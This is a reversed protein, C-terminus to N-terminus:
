QTIKGKGLHWVQMQGGMHFKLVANFYALTNESWKPKIMNQQHFIDGYLPQYHISIMWTKHLEPLQHM